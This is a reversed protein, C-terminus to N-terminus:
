LDPLREPNDIDAMRATGASQCGLFIWFLGACRVYLENWSTRKEEMRTQAQILDVAGAVFVNFRQTGPYVM